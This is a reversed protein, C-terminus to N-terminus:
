FSCFDVNYVGFLINYLGRPAPLVNSSYMVYIYRANRIRYWHKKLLGRSTLAGFVYRMYWVWICFVNHGYFLISFKELYSLQRVFCRPPYNVLWPM